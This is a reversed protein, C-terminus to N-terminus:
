DRTGTPATVAGSSGLLGSIANTQSATKGISFAQELAVYFSVPGAGAVRASEPLPVGVDFRIVKRDIAPVALRLGGGVAHKPHPRGSDYADGVDYFLVAAFQLSGVRVPRTRLELNVAVVNEGILAESPYGRLRTDGGLTSRLNLSNRWRQVTFADFVVRGLFFQPTAITGSAAFAGDNVRHVTAETLSELSARVFGTGAIWTYVAGAAVGVFNRSSGLATTVPYGRLWLEYGPRFDEALALTDLDYLRVLGSEYAHVQLFPAGRNDSRPLRAREFSAVARPDYGELDHTRYQRVTMEAGLTVDFKHARGFSRVASVSETVKRARYADPIHDPGPTEPADYEAVRADVYRRVIRDSWEVNFGFAWPSRSSYLPRWVAVQGYSGEVVGSGRQVFANAESVFYLRTGAFRPVFYGAGFMYTEPELQFRLVVSDHSGAVNRELPEILLREIGGPGARLDLSPRLSWVDKVVVLLRVRRPTSGKLAVAVVLSLQRLERLNRATEDVLVQQYPEGRRLLVEREVVYGRTTVHLANLFAPAPDRPEIVDLARVEIDEVIKGEPAEDISAGLAKLSPAIEDAEYSSLAPAGLSPASALLVGLAAFASARARIM